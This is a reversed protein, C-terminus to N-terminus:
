KAPRLKGIADAIEKAMGPRQKPDITPRVDVM